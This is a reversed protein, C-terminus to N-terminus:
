CEVGYSKAHPLGAAMRTLRMYRGMSRESTCWVTQLRRHRNLYRVVSAVPGSLRAPRFAVDRLRFPMFSATTRGLMYSKKGSRPLHRSITELRAPGSPLAIAQEAALRMSPMYNAMTGALLCSVERWLLRPSCFAGEWIGQGYRNAHRAVAVRPM